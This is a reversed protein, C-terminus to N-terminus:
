LVRQPPKKTCLHALSADVFRLPLHEDRGTPIGLRPCRIIHAVGLGIDEITLAGKEPMRDNWEAVKLALSKCLLTQGSCLRDPQRPKGGKPNLRQMIPLCRSKPSKRDFFPVGSKILVANGGGRCSFNLSDGGRAYYMYVTGPPAFLARRAHTYGLSAHSGKEEKYYAETEIIRAALWLGQYRHRVIKGLLAQATEAADQDFFDFGLIM